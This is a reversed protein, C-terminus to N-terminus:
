TYRYIHALYIGIKQAIQNFFHSKKVSFNPILGSGSGFSNIGSGSGEFLEPDVVSGGVCSESFPPLCVVWHRIQLLPPRTGPPGAQGCCGPLDGGRPQVRACLVPPIGAGSGNCHLWSSFSYGFIWSGYPQREFEDLQTVFSFMWCKLSKEVKRPDNKGEQIRIRIWGILILASGSGFCQIRTVYYNFKRKKKM